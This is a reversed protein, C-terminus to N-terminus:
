DNVAQLGYNRTVPPEKRDDTWPLAGGRRMAEPWDREDRDGRWRIVQVRGVSKGEDTLDPALGFGFEPWGLLASSGRPRYDREGGKGLAHGAHAEMALACGRDRISDLAALVPAADDDTSIARPVLRYLPGIVVLDPAHEDILGHIAGLDAATTIDMRSVCALHVNDAAEVGSAMRVAISTARTARRWQRESNEADVVLVRRQPFRAGTFPHVGGAACLAIQRLFTSKGLGEAGTLILRDAIEMLGPILWNYADDQESFVESLLRAGFTSRRAGDRIQKSQEAVWSALIAADDGADALQSTRRGLASLARLVAGERIVKANIDARGPTGHTVLEALDGDSPWLTAATVRAARTSGDDRAKASAVRRAGVERFVTVPTVADVGGAGVMGVILGFVQGLRTDRFDAPAIVGAVQRVVHPNLLCEGVVAREAMTTPDPAAYTDQEPETM